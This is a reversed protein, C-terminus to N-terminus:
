KPSHADRAGRETAVDHRDDQHREAQEQDEASPRGSDALALRRADIVGNRYPEVEVGVERGDAIDVLVARGSETGSDVGIAYRPSDTV